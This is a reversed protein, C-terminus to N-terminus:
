LEIEQNEEQQTGLFKIIQVWKTEIDSVNNVSPAFKSEAMKRLESILTLIKDAGHKTILRKAAYRDFRSTKTTGFTDSFAKLLTNIEPNGYEVQATNEKLAETFIKNKNRINTVTQRTVGTQTATLEANDSNFELLLLVVLDFISVQKVFDSVRM